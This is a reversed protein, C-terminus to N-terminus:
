HNWRKPDYSFDVLGDRYDIKIDLLRLTTFGLIGSVETGIRDSMHTLDIAVVDQNKQRLHGFQLVAKDARYVQKVSGSIGRVSMRPDDHVKTIEEAANLSIFNRGTGTDLLFLKVPAEGVSTPVLLQHGFRYLQTYSNMEPAIYRDQPGARPAPASEPQNPETTKQAPEEETSSGTGSESQLAIKTGTEGPRKPLERLHLKENPFDIDVLFPSFVDAGILGEYGTVSRQEIVQVACDQFELEGIKLSNALGMYGSRSGKDGIGGIDTESLKTVDAKEALKRNIMIGSAGTDLLLESKKGNVAVSLGYGQLHTPDMLLRVLKTETTTAQTVLHCGARPDKTSAKLYDLYHQIAARTEGDDNTDSALYQEYYKIGEARSLRGAWLTTIGPDSPDLEHAKDIMDRGSKYM